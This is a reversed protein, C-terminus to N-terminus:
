VAWPDFLDIGFGEFDKTNHTALTLERAIATAGILGDMSSLDRGDRKALGMLHGWALAVSENVPLVKQDFRRPLDEVLWETLLQREQGADMEAVSRRIEAVSIVSIFVRDEDLGALWDLVRAKPVPNTMELLVCTDLLLRM